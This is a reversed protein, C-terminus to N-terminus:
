QAGGPWPLALARLAVLDVQAYITTTQPSRHRLLKGIESLSAGQRLMQTALAHRFQHAGKRPSNIDARALARKVISGVARQEKLGRIPARTRLFLSRSTSPPRGHQLYTAVAEGVDAPLPLYCERGGKGCVRLRGVEWDIDDLTLAAIEGARLGLRALLMLVAHDRRGAASHVDCHALVQRVHDPAIARPISRTARSAVAPVAAALDINIDGRYRAYRLFSRLATTM